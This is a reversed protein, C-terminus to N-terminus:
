EHSLRRTQHKIFEVLEQESVPAYDWVDVGVNIQRGKVRWLSHVHGHILWRDSELQHFETFREDVRDSLLQFHCLTVAHAISSTKDNLIFNVTNPLVNFGAQEYKEAWNKGTKDEWCRDHNGPVLYKYGNLRLALPLTEAIKGMAFDGLVFVTDYQGVVANWNAILSENMHEVSDFPRNCYQIVNQHGLHLDSTFFTTM